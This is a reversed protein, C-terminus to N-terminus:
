FTEKIYNLTKEIKPIDLKDEAMIPSELTISGRYNMLSLLASVKKFDIKGEGPHYIPRLASFDRYGGGFDSIHIHEIKRNVSTDTLVDKIQEHLKGFRTDFILGGKSIDPLLKKWNSLPDSTNSPVNEILLRVGFSGAIDELFSLKSINYDVYKDSTIGGWLHLVMRGAGLKGATECNLKFLRLSEKFLVDSEDKKNDYFLKGADSLMTGIEKECHVVDPSFGADLITKVVDDNKDYFFVLMMLELDDCLGKEKLKFIERVARKYDYGNHRSVMTGTSVYLMGEM